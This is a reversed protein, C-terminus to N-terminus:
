LTTCVLTIQTFTSVFLPLRKGSLILFTMDVYDCIELFFLLSFVFSHEYNEHFLQCKYIYRKFFIKFMNLLDNTTM